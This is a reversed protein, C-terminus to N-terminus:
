FNFTGQHIFIEAIAALGQMMQRTEPTRMEIVTHAEPEWLITLLLYGHRGGDVYVLASDSTRRGAELKWKRDWDQLCEPNTLPVLHVHQLVYEGLSGRPRDYPVDKGFYYHDNEAIEGKAKWDSFEQVLIEPTFFDVDTHHVNEWGAM